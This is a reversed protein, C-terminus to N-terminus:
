LTFPSSDSARSSSPDCKVLSPPYQAELAHGMNQEHIAYGTEFGPSATEQPLGALRQGNWSRWWESFEVLQLMTPRLNQGDRERRLM